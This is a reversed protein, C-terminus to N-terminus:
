LLLTVIDRVEIRFLETRAAAATATEKAKSEGAFAVQRYPLTATKGSRDVVAGASRVGIANVERM